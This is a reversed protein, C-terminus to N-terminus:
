QLPNQHHGKAMGRGLLRGLFAPVAVVLGWFLFEFPWLSHTTPDAAVDRLLLVLHTMLVGSCIALAPGPITRARNDEGAFWGFELLFACVLILVLWAPWLLPYKDLLTPGDYSLGNRILVIDSLAGIAFAILFYTTSRLKM